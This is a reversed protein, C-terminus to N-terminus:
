FRILVRGDRPKGFYVLADKLQDFQFIKDTKVKLKRGSALDILERMDQRSGGTSGIISIENTYIRGIDITTDRGNMVGFTILKGRRQVHTLSKSFLEGGLPNIVIDAKFDEPIKEAPFTERAGYEDLYAKSSVAFVNLGMMNALQIAFIGTNGAAGYVMLTQGARAGAEKLAHYPTMAAIPFSVAVEDSITDPVMYLNEEKILLTEAFGGNSVVGYIGGNSCLYERGSICIDIFFEKTWVTM